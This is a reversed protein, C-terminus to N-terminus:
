KINQQRFGTLTMEQHSVMKGNLAQIIVERVMGVGPLFNREATIAPLQSHERVLVVFGPAVGKPEKIPVPGWIQYTQKFSKDKAEYDWTRPAKLPWPLLVQPPDLMFVKGEKKRKTAVLGKEGLQWWEDFVLVDNRRLEIQTGANDTEAVTMTVKARAKGDADPVIGQLNIKAGEGAEQMFQYTWIKGKTLPLLGRPEKIDSAKDAPAVTFEASKWPKGDARVDLRYKGLPLPNDQSYSLKGRDRGQLQLDGKAIQYNPPAADGVDVAIWTGTLIKYSEGKALRFVAIVEKATSPFTQTPYVPSYDAAAAFCLQLSPEQAQVNTTTILTGVFLGLTWFFMLIIKM